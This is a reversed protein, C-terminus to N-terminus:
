SRTGAQGSPAEYVLVEGLGFNSGAVLNKVLELQPRARRASLRIDSEAGRAPSTKIHDATAGFEFGALQAARM